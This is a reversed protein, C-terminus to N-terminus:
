YQSNFHYHKLMSHHLILELRVASCEAPLQVSQRGGICRLNVDVCHLSFLDTWRDPKHKNKLQDGNIVM